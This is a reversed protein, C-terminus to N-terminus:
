FKRKSAPKRAGRNGSGICIRHNLSNDEDRKKVIIESIKKQKGKM